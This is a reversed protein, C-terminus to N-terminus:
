KVAALGVLEDVPYLATHLTLHKVYSPSARSTEIECVTSWQGTSVKAPSFSFLEVASCVAAELIDM